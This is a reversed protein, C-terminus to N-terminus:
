VGHLILSEKFVVIKCVFYPLIDQEEETEDLSPDPVQLTTIAGSSYYKSCCILISNMPM